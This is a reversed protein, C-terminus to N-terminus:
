GWGPRPPNDLEGKLASTFRSATMGDIFRHDYAISVEMVPAAEIRDGEGVVPAKRIAGIFVTCSHPPNIIPTGTEVGRAGLNSVTITGGTLDRAGLRGSAAKERLARIEASIERASKRHADRVVPVVLGEDTAVAVAVNVEEYLVVTDGELTSNVEPNREAARAVAKVVLGSITVGEMADKAQLLPRADVTTMQTFQPIDRWSQLMRSAMARRTPNLKVRAKVAPGRSLSLVDRETIVGGPGSGEVGELDVGLERALKRVRPSARVARTGGATPGERGVVAAAAEAGAHGAERAAAEGTSKAEAPAASGSEAGTGPLGTGTAVGPAEEGAAAGAPGREGARWAAGSRAREEEFRRLAEEVDVVEGEAAIVALPEGVRVECGEEVLIARLVGEYSSEIEITAKESEVVLLLDGRRVYDGVKKEWSVVTASTMTVGLRPLTVIDM